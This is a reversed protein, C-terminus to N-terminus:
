WTPDGYGKWQVQYQRHVRGFHNKRVSQVVIITKFEFDDEEITREWSAEPLMAESFDM